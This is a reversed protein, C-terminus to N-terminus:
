PDGKDEFFGVRVTQYQQVFEAGASVRRFPRRQAAGDEIAEVFAATSRHDRGM